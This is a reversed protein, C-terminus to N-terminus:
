GDALRENLPSQLRRAGKAQWGSSVGRIAGRSDDPSTGSNGTWAQWGSSGGPIAAPQRESAAWFGGWAQPTGNQDPRRLIEATRV